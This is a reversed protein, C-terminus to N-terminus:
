IFPLIRSKLGSLRPNEDILQQVKERFVPLTKKHVALEKLDKLITAIEDYAKTNKEGVLKNIRIWLAIQQTEIEELKRLRAAEAKAKKKAKKTNKLEEALQIIEGITRRKSNNEKQPSIGSLEKLRHKLEFEISNGELLNVLFNDKEKDLLKNIFQKYDIDQIEKETSNQAAVSLYDNDLQILKVFEELAHSLNNLNAPVPPEVLELHEEDNNAEIIAVYLWAIYLLRYDGRLVDDYLPIFEDLYGDDDIWDGGGEEDSIDIDIILNEGDRITSVGEFDCYQIMATENVVKKPFKFILRKSGWNAIYFGADFYQKVVDLMDKRFDGYSYTFIAGNSTATTRSSWTNIEAKEKDALRGRIKRFEYLQYESM